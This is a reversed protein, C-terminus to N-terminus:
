PKEEPKASAAEPESLRAFSTANSQQGPAEAITVPAPTRLRQTQAPNEVGAPELPLPATDQHMTQRVLGEVDELVTGCEKATPELKAFKVLDSERLLREVHGYLAAPLPSAKLALLVEETTSELGDFGYRGGLYDRLVHNVRELHRTFMGQRVLDEHRIEALAALAIEWAPRPPPPPPTPKPRRRMWRVLSYVLGAIALGVLVGYAGNRLGVWLEQQREGGPHRKPMANPVNATPDTVTTAHPSTCLTMMEGSARAVAIPLPPLTAPQPGAEKPLPLVTIEVVTTADSERETRQVRPASPGVTAPFEFGARRLAKAGDSDRQLEFVDSLVREGKGHTLTVKLVGAHGAPIQTPFVEELSPRSKGPPVSEKCTSWPNTADAPASPAPALNPQTSSAGPVPEATSPAATSPAATPTPVANPSETSVPVAPAPQAAALNAASFGVVAVAYSVRKPTTM